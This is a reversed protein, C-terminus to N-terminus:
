CLEKGKLYITLKEKFQVLARGRHSIADKDESNILAFCGKDSVFVPDYGFGEDALRQESIVGDCRGSASVIDGNPFVCCISCSFYASRDDAGKLESLLKNINDNENGHGGAYRASYIGPAGGLANVSLGSDDAISPLETAKMASEAKLLANDYFTKGTEEVEPIPNALDRESIFEVEPFSLIRQMEVLKKLNKTALLFKM